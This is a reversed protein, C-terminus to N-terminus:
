PQCVNIETVVENRMVTSSISVRRDRINKLWSEIRELRKLDDESFIPTAESSIHAAWRFENWPVLKLFEDFSIKQVNWIFVSYCDERFCKFMLQYSSCNQSYKGELLSELQNVFHDCAWKHHDILDRSAETFPQDSLRDAKLKTMAHVLAEVYHKIKDVETPSIKQNQFSSVSLDAFYSAELPHGQLKYCCRLYAANIKKKISSNLVKALDVQIAAASFYWDGFIIEDRQVEDPEVRPAKPGVVCDDGDMPDLTKEEPVEDPGAREGGGTCVRRTPDQLPTLDRKAISSRTSKRLSRHM